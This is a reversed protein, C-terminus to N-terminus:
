FDCKTLINLLLSKKNKKKNIFLDYVVNFQFAYKYCTSNLIGRFIAFGYSHCSTFFLVNSFHIYVSMTFYM